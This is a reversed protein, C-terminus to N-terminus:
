YYLKVSDNNNMDRYKKCKNIVECRYCERSLKDARYLIDSLQNSNNNKNRHECIAIKIINIDRDNYGAHGLISDSLKASEVAHDSGDQYEKWRGIDHLLAAAYIVEKDVSYNNELNLIYAIRAVSFLHDYGHTCYIRNKELQINKEMHKKYNENLLINNVKVMDMLDGLVM